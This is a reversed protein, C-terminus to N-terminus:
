EITDAEKTKTTLRIYEWLGAPPNTNKLVRDELIALTILLGTPTGSTKVEADGNKTKISIECPMKVHKELKENIEDLNDGLLLGLLEKDM